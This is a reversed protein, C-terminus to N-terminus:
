LEIEMNQLDNKNKLELIKPNDELINNYTDKVKQELSNVKGIFDNLLIGRRLESIEKNDILESLESTLNNKSIETNLIDIHSFVNIIVLSDENPCLKSTFIPFDKEVPKSIFKKDVLFYNEELHNLLELKKNANRKYGEMEELSYELQIILTDYRYKGLLNNLEEFLEEEKLTDYINNLRVIHTKIESELKKETSILNESSINVVELERTKPATFADYDWKLQVVEKFFKTFNDLLKMYEKSNTQKKLKLCTDLGEKMLAFDGKFEKPFTTKFIEKLIGQNLYVETLEKSNFIVSDPLENNNM